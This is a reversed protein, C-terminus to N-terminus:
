IYIDGLDALCRSNKSPKKSKSGRLGLCLVPPFAMNTSFMASVRNSVTHMQVVEPGGLVCVSFRSVDCTAVLQRAEDAATQSLGDIHKILDCFRKYGLSVHLRTLILGLDHRDILLV